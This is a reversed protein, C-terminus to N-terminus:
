FRNSPVPAPLGTNQPAVATASLRVPTHLTLIHVSGQPISVVKVTEPSALGSIIGIANGIFGGRMTNKSDGGTVAGLLSTGLRSYAPANQRAKEIGSAVTITSASIASSSAQIPVVQGGVVLSEAVIQVSGNSPVLQAAVPSNAPVVVNGFNDLIPQALLLTVSHNQEEGADFEVHSPFAVIIASSQPITSVQSGVQQNLPLTPEALAPLAVSGFMSLTMALSLLTHKKM